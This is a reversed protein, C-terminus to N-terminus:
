REMLVREGTVENSVVIATDIRATGLVASFEDDPIQLHAHLAEVSEWKEILRIETPDEINLTFVYDINGADKRSREARAALADRVREMEEASEVKITGTVILM